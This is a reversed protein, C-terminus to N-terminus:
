NGAHCKGLDKSWHQGTPCPSTASSSSGSPSTPQGCKAGAPLQWGALPPCPDGCSDGTLNVGPTTPFLVLCSPDSGQGGIDSEPGTPDTGPPGDPSWDTVTAVVADQCSKKVSNCNLRCTQESKYAADCQSQFKDYYGFDSRCNYDIAIDCARLCAGASDNCSTWTRNQEDSAKPWLKPPTREGCKTLLSSCNGYCERPLPPPVQGPFWAARAAEKAADWAQNCMDQCQNWPEGCIVDHEPNRKPIDSLKPITPPARSPTASKGTDLTPFPKQDTKCAEMKDGCAALCLQRDRYDKKCEGENANFFHIDKCRHGYELSANADDCGRKCAAHETRCLPQLPDRALLETAPICLTITLSLAVPFLLLRISVEM